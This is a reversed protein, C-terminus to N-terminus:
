GRYGAATRSQIADICFASSRLEDWRHAFGPHNGNFSSIIAGSKSGYIAARAHLWGSVIRDVSARILWAGGIRDQDRTGHELM